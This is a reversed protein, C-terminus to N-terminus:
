IQYGFRVNKGLQCVFQVACSPLVVPWCWQGANNVSSSLLVSWCWQGGASIYFIPNHRHTHTQTNTTHTHQTHQTWLFCVSIMRMLMILMTMMMSTNPVHQWSDQGITGALPASWQHQETSSARPTLLALSLPGCCANLCVASPHSPSESQM